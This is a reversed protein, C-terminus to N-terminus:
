RSTIKEKVGLLTSFLVFDYSFHAGISFWQGFTNFGFSILFIFPLVLLGYLSMKWNFPNLYGHIAVFFISTIWVGLLPQIGARFLLEEGFGACVSLFFADFYTLNMRKVVNEIKNPMSDFIPAGSFLLVFFAYIVGFIIGFATEPMWIEDLRLFQKLTISKQWFWFLYAPLPFVILTIFGLFYISRKSM